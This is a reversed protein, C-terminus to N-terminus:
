SRKSTTITTLEKDRTTINQHFDISFEDSNKSSSKLKYLIKAIQADFNEKIDKRSSSSFYLADMNNM